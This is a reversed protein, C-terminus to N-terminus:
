MVIVGKNFLSLM